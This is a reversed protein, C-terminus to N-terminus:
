NGGVRIYNKEVYKKHQEVLKQEEFQEENLKKEIQKELLRSPCFNEYLYDAHADSIVLPVVMTSQPTIIGFQDLTTM